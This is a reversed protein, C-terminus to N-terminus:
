TLNLIPTLDKDSVLRLVSMPISTARNLLGDTIYMGTMVRHVSSKLCTERKKVREGSCPLM